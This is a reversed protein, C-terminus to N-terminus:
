TADGLRTVNLAAETFSFGSDEAVVQITTPVATVRFPVSFSMTAVENSSAFTHTAVAGPVQAGAENLRVTLTAPITTGPDVAATTHFTAQYIGPTNIVVDTSGAQHTISTGSVLPNDSFTLAGGATSPQTTPDVTALVEPAGGSGPEGRPIVFDFIADEETGSNTVEAETGPDGTTM